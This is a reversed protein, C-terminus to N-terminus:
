GGIRETTLTIKRQLRDLFEWENETGADVLCEATTHDRLERHIALCERCWDAHESLPAPLEDDAL